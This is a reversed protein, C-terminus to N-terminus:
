FPATRPISLAVLFALAMGVASITFALTFAIEAPVGGAFDVHASLISASIQAGIAGGIMRMITNIGNAVGTKSQDVAGVILNPMASFSLGNGLGLVASAVYMSWPDGHSAAMFTFSLAGFAAGLLLPTKSGVRDGLWGGLGGAVLMMVSFPVLYLAAQSPSAGFGYGGASPTRVFEPILILAGFLGFGILLAALNTALVPRLRMMRMDVLPHPARWEFGVWSSLVAAAAVFLAISPVSGWGWANGQSIGVLLCILGVSLLAAGLWDIPGRSGARSPPVLRHVTVVAIAVLASALWFIWHFGLEDTIVGGLTFGLGGGVGFTSGILGIGTAVQGRPLEDRIIGFSLPFVAGAAGQILRGAILGEISWSLAAVLSGTGFTAMTLVLLRPKGFMDGFRGLIPTAVAASLLFGTVLFSAVSATTGFERQIEPIAPIVMTQGMAFALTCLLLPALTIWPSKARVAPDTKRWQARVEPTKAAAPVM